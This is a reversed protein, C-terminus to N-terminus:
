QFASSAYQILLTFTVTAAVIGTVGLLMLALNAARRRQKARPHPAPPPPFGHLTSDAMGGSFVGPISVTVPYEAAPAPPFSGSAAVEESLQIPAGTVRRSQEQPDIEVRWGSPPPPLQEAPLSFGGDPGPEPWSPPPNLIKGTM